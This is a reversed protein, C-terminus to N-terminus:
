KSKRLLMIPKGAEVTEGPKSIMKEVVAGEMSEEAKVPIELKMAELISVVQELKIKDGEKVEIKWVNANLPSEVAIIEPDSLLEDITELSVQGAEKEKNLKELMENEKKILADQAKAQDKRIREVEDKTEALLENHKALDFETDEYEYVYRGSHFVALMRDYEEESVEYFQVQDFDEVLWPREAAYSKKFGLV